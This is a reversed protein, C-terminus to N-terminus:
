MRCCGCDYSRVADDEYEEYWEIMWDNLKSTLGDAACSNARGSACWAQTTTDYNGELILAVEDDKLTSGEVKNRGLELIYFNRKGDGFDCEYKAGIAKETGSKFDCSALTPGAPADQYVLDGDSNKIITKENLVISLDSINENTINM